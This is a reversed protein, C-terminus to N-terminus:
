ALSMGETANTVVFDVLGRCHFFGRWMNHGQGEAVVLTMEGGLCRYRRALEGSNDELPVLTDRDGHIHFIPVHLKALGSLRDIPDHEALCAKLEDEALGYAGCAKETGPYSSLNCVPYIGAICNVSQPHEAAWNYHM